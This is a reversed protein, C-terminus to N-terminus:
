YNVLWISLRLILGTCMIVLFLKIDDKMNKKSVM